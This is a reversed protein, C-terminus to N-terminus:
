DGRTLGRLRRSDASDEFNMPPPEYLPSQEAVPRTPMPQGPKEPVTIMVQEAHMVRCREEWAAVDKATQPFMAVAGTDPHEVRYFGSRERALAEMIADEPTMPGGQGESGGDWGHARTWAKANALGIPNDMVRHFPNREWRYGLRLPPIAKLEAVTLERGTMDQETVM